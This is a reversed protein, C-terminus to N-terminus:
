QIAWGPFSFLLFDHGLFARVEVLDVFDFGAASPALFAKFHSVSPDVQAEAKGTAVHTTAVRGLVFVSAGVVAVLLVGDDAGELGAFVPHPAVRIFDEHLLPRSKGFFRGIFFDDRL